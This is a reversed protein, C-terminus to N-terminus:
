QYRDNVKCIGHKLIQFNVYKFFKFSLVSRITFINLNILNKFKVSKSFIKIITSKCDEYILLESKKLDSEFIMFFLLQPNERDCLSLNLMKYPIMKM